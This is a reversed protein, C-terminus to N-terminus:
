EQPVWKPDVECTQVIRHDCEAEGNCAKVGMLITPDKEPDLHVPPVAPHDAQGDKPDQHEQHCEQHLGKLDGLDAIM